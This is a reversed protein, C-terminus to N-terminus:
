LEKVVRAPSGLALCKPPVDRTVISGAGVVCGKGLKIGPLLICGSAIWVNDEIVVPAKQYGCLRTLEEGTFNHNQSYIIVNPGILVDSGIFVGGEANIFSGRNISVNNGIVLNSPKDIQVGDWITVNNGCRYPYLINRIWCGTRGPIYKVVFQIWMLIEHRIARAINM